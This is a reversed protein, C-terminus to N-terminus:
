LEEGELGSFVVLAAAVVQAQGDAAQGDSLFLRRPVFYSYAHLRPISSRLFRGEQGIQTYDQKKYDIVHDAGISRVVDV